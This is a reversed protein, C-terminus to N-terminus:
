ATGRKNQHERETPVGHQASNIRPVQSSGGGESSFLRSNLKTRRQRIPQSSTRSEGQHQAKRTQGRSGALVHTHTHTHTNTHARTLSYTHTLTNHTHIHTRPTHTHTHTHTTHTHTHTRARTHTKHTHTHTHERTTHCTPRHNAHDTRDASVRTPPCITFLYQILSPDFIKKPIHQLRLHARSSSVGGFYSASCRPAIIVSHIALRAGKRATAQGHRRSGGLHGGVRSHHWAQGEEASHVHCDAIPRCATILATRLTVLPRFLFFTPCPWLSSGVSRAVCLEFWFLVWAPLPAGCLHSSVDIDAGKSILYEVVATHGSDAAYHIPM